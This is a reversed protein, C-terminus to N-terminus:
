AEGLSSEARGFVFFSDLYPEPEASWGYARVEDATRRGLRGRFWEVDSADVDVPPLGAAAVQEHFGGRLRGAVWEVFDTPVDLPLGLANRLDAEHTHVDIVGALMPEGEPSSFVAELMPSNAAWMDLLESLSMSRGREVHAATWAPGPAGAMNGNVADHSVGAVHAVVDHVTWGPTAPVPRSEDVSPATVLATIRERCTRYAFGPDVSMPRVTAKGPIDSCDSEADPSRGAGWGAVRAMVLPRRWLPRDSAGARHALLTHSLSLMASARFRAVPM